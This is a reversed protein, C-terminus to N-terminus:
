LRKFITIVRFRHNTSKVMGIVGVMQMTAKRWMPLVQDLWILYGGPELISECEKLVINRNVMPCGYHECDEISYPPDSFICDFKTEPFYSALKHADGVVEATGPLRDFRTYNGFPLSGSFLHLINKADPFLAGVRDMYGHPYGGYYGSTQYNNGMIFMGSIRNDGGLWLSQPYGTIKHYNDIREQLTLTMHNPSSCFPHQVQKTQGHMQIGISCM